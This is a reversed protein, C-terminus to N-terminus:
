PLSPNLLKALMYTVAGMGTALISLLSVLVTWVISVKTQMSSYEEQATVRKLQSPIHVYGQKISHVEEAVNGIKQELNSICATLYLALKKNGSDLEDDAQIRSNLNEYNNNPM